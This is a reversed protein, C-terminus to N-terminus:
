CCLRLKTWHGLARTFSSLFSASAYWFILLLTLSQSVSPKAALHACDWRLRARKQTPASTQKVRPLMTPGAPFVCGRAPLAAAM